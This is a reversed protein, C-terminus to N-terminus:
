GGDHTCEPKNCLLIINGSEKEYYRLCQLAKVTSSRLGYDNSYYGDETEMIANYGHNWPTDEPLDKKEKEGCGALSLVLVTLALGALKKRLSWRRKM